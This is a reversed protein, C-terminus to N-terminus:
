RTALWAAVQDIETESLTQAFPRMTDSMNESKHGSKYQRLKAALQEAPRGALKPFRGQGQGDPGHCDKCVSNFKTAGPDTATEQGGGCAALGSLVAIAILNRMM